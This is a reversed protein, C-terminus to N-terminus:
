VDQQQAIEKLHYIADAINQAGFVSTGAVLVQAGAQVVEAINHQVIGGDVQLLIEYGSKDILTRAERIKDTMAEIYAQGGYGPEVTMVLLLDVYQLFPVIDSLPTNPKVSLGSKAGLARITLLCREVQETAEVHITVLDAGSKVFREIYNEPTNIMLHVDLLMGSNKRISQVIPLGFSINPVFQGDMVDIHLMDAGADEVKKVQEGIKWLDAALLSPAIQIM